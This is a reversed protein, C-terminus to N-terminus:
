DSQQHTLRSSHMVICVMSQCYGVFPNRFSYATLVRRMGNLGEANQYFPHEPFTRVLDREIDATALTTIGHSEHLLLQYEFPRSAQLQKASSLMM